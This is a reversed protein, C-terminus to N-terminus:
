GRMLKVVKGLGKSALLAQSADRSYLEAHAIDTHGLVDMLERTTAGSEALMVGLTKRLGHLKCDDPLGAKRCWIRFTGTLSKHSFPNGYATVLVTEGKVQVHDLVERLMPVIDLSMSRGTKKQTFRAIDDQLESHRLRVIDGRRDGLWLALSYVLRPTTGVKWYSEFLAREDATWARWGKYAPRHKLRHAPDTTIWEQDLAADIMKRLVKMLHKAAHPTDSREALIAKLHRRQLEGIDLDGWLTADHAVVRSNLFKEAIRAYNAQTEPQLRKWEPTQTVVIRWAAKLSRPLASAPHRRVSASKIPNGSLAAEYAALAKASAAPDGPLPITKGKRRFRWRQRGHRDTFSTAYPHEATM